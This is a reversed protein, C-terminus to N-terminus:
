EAMTLRIEGPLEMYAVEAEALPGGYYEVWCLADPEDSVRGWAGPLLDIVRGDTLIARAATPQHNEWNEPKEYTVYVGMPRFVVSVVRTEQVNGGEDLVRFGDVPEDLLERSVDPLAVEYEWTGEEVVQGDSGCLDTLKVVVTTEGIGQAMLDLSDFSLMYVEMRSEPYSEEPAWVLGCAVNEGEVTTVDMERFTFHTGSIDKGDLSQIIIKGHVMGGDTLFSDLSIQYNGVQRVQQADQANEEIFDIQGQSLPNERNGAFYNRFWLGADGAAFATVALASIVAALILLKKGLGLGRPKKEYKGREEIKKMTLEKIRSRSATISPQIDVPVETLDDLLDSIMFEM